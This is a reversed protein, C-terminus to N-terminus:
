ADDDGFGDDGEEEAQKRLTIAHTIDDARIVSNGSDGKRVPVDVDDLAPRLTKSTWDGYRAPNLEALRSLAVMTRIHKDTGIVRALDTLFDPEPEEAQDENRAPPQYGERLALAREVIPAVQDVEDDKRLYFSRLLGPKAMIGRVMSTGVDGDSEDTRPELSVASVGAKYSGTGLVADNSQQDGIAFCAKCSTVAMIKRPLSATSPEPTAFM